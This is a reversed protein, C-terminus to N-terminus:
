VRTNIIIICLNAHVYILIFLSTFNSISDCFLIPFIIYHILNKLKEKLIFYYIFNQVCILNIKRKIKSRM